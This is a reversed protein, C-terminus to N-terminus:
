STPLRGTEMLWRQVARAETDTLGGRAALSFEHVNEVLELFPTGRRRAAIILRLSQPKEGWVAYEDWHLGLYEHLSETSRGEHWREVYDDIDTWVARGDLVLDIYRESM